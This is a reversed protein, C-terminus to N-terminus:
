GVQQPTDESGGGHRPRAPRLLQRGLVVAVLREPDRLGHQRARLVGAALQIVHRGEEPEPVRPRHRGPRGPRLHQRGLVVAVDPRGTRVGHRRGVGGDLHRRHPGPGAVARHGLPRRPRARRLHQRGLVMSHREDPRRLVVRRGGLGVGVDGGSVQVPTDSSTETGNGLQGSGNAGWCWASHDAQVGCTVNSAASVQTWDTATGVQVPSAENGEAGNGLQGSGGFGWCWLTGDTRIACGTYAAGSIATYDGGGTVQVPTDYQGTTTGNGLEGNDALGWCWATGDKRVACAHLAGVAAQTWGARAGVRVPSDQSATSGDGLEGEKGDGWCWLTHGPRCRARATRGASVQAWQVAQATAASPAVALAAATAAASVAAMIANRM